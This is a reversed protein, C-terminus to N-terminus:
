YRVEKRITAKCSKSIKDLPTPKIKDKNTKCTDSEKENRRDREKVHCTRREDWNKQM